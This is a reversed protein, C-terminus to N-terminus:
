NRTPYESIGVWRWAGLNVQWGSRLRLRLRPAQVKDVASDM